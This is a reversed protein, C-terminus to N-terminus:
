RFLKRLNEKSFLGLIYHLVSIVLLGYDKTDLAYYTMREDFFKFFSPQLKFRNRARIFYLIDAPFFWRMYKGTEYSFDCMEIKEGVLSECFWLPFNVGCFIPLTISGWTRPNIELVKYDGTSPNYKYEVMAFGEWGITDLITKGVKRLRENRVSECVVSPGGEPPYERIRRHVFSAICKNEENYLYSAGYGSYGEPVFEQVIYNETNNEKKIEEIVQELELKSKVRKLGESGRGKRPKIVLPTPLEKWAKNECVESLLWTRPVSVNIKTLFQYTQYKDRFIKFKEYDPILTKVEEKVLDKKSSLIEVSEDELPIIIEINEKKVIELIKTLYHDSEYPDMQFYGSVYKSYRVPIFKKHSAVFVEYKGNMGLSQVFPIAKRSHADLILVRVGSM